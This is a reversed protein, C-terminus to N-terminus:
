HKVGQEAIAAPVWDPIPADMVGSYKRQFEERVVWVGGGTKQQIFDAAQLGVVPSGPILVVLLKELLHNDLGESAIILVLGNKKFHLVHADVKGALEQTAKTRAISGSAM